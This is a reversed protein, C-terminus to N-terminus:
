GFRIDGAIQTNPIHSHSFKRSRSCYISTNERVHCYCLQQCVCYFVRDILVVGHWSAKKYSDRRVCLSSSLRLGTANPAVWWSGNLGGIGGSGGCSGAGGLGFGGDGSCTGLSKEGSFNANRYKEVLYRKLFLHFPLKEVSSETSISLLM